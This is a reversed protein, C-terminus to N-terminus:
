RLRERSPIRCGGDFFFYFFIEKEEPDVELESSVTCPGSVASLRNKEFIDLVNKM